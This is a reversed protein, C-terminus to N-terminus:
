TVTVEAALSPTKCLELFSMRARLERYERMYRGAQRMLWVPTYPVAERRCARMFPSNDLAATSNSEPKQISGTEKGISPIESMKSSELPTSREVPRRIQVWNETVAGGFQHLIEKLSCYLASFRTICTLKLFNDYILVKRHKCGQSRHDILPCALAKICDM